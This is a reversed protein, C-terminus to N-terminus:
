GSVNSRHAVDALGLEALAQDIGLGTPQEDIYRRWSELDQQWSRVFETCLEPTIESHTQRATELSRVIRSRLAAEIPSREARNILREIFRARRHLFREWYDRDARDIPQREDLLWYLGEAICDGFEESRARDPSAFPDFTKQRMSGTVAVRPPWADGLVFLWDDNYVDPFLSRSRTPSVTMAGAGIFQEQPGGVARYAHCVVSNDPFGSNALGVASYRDLLGAAAETDRHDLSHIDDDLLLVRGWGAIRALLLGLNRKRSTDTGRSLREAAILEAATSAPVVRECDRMDLAIATVGLEEALYSVDSSSVDKSCVALLVCQLRDAFAMAERLWSIPRGSPVVLADLRAIPAEFAAAQM